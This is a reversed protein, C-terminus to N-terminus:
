EHLLDIGFAAERATDAPFEVAPMGASTKSLHFKLVIQTKADKTQLTVQILESQTRTELACDAAHTKFNAM